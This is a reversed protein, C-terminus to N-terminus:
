RELWEGKVPEPPGVLHDEPERRDLRGEDCVEIRANVDIHPGMVRRGRYLFHERVVHKMSRLCAAYATEVIETETAYRSVYWKRARQVALEGTEVDREDYELQLLFGDGKELLRFRRDMFEVRNVIAQVEARTKPPQTM